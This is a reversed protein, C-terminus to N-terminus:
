GMAAPLVSSVDEPQVLPQSVTPQGDDPLMTDGAGLVAMTTYEIHRALAKAGGSADRKLAMELLEKHEGLIDRDKETGLHRSWRRYLESADRLSKAIERLRRSRCGDLLMAHFATHAVAWDENVRRPDETSLQPTRELVHHAAVLRSEWALDGEIIARRFTLTEVETRADTLDRLDEPSVPMVRFGQQPEYLVLGQETLRSLAERLVGVSTTYRASLDSFLRQGPLLRGALIDGKLRLYADEARTASRSM